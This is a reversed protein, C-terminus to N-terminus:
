RSRAIFRLTRVIWATLGGGAAAASSAIVITATSVCAPCM